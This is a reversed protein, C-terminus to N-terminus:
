LSKALIEREQEAREKAQLSQRYERTEKEVKILFEIVDAITKNEFTVNDWLDRM